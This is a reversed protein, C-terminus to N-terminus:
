QNMTRWNQWMINIWDYNKSWFQESIRATAKTNESSGVNLYYSAVEDTINLGSIPAAYGQLASFKSAAAAMQGDSGGSFLARILKDAAGGRQSNAPVIWWDTSILASQIGTKLSCSSIPAKKCVTRHVSLLRGSWAAAFVMDGSELGAQLADGTKWWVIVQKLERLRDLGEQVRQRLTEQPLRSDYLYENPNKGLSALAAEINGIPFDRVGRSGPYRRIDWFERWGYNSRKDSSRLRDERVAVVYAYELVPAAFGRNLYEALAADNEFAKSILDLKRDSFSKFLKEYGPTMVYYSEVHVMDWTNIGIQIRKTLAGYDGDWAETELTVGARQAAPAVWSSMLDAQFKGGWSVIHVVNERADKKAVRDRNDCASVFLVLIAIAPIVFRCRLM